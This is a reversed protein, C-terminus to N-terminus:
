LNLNTADWMERFVLSPGRIKQISRRVLGHTRREKLFPAHLEAFGSLEVPFRPIGSNGTLEQQIEAPNRNRETGEIENRIRNRSSDPNALACPM